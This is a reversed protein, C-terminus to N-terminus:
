LSDEKTTAELRQIFFVDSLALDSSYPSHLFVQQEGKRWYQALLEQCIEMRDIKMEKTLM